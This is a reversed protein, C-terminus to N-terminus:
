TWLWIKCGNIKHKSLKHRARQADRNTEYPGLQVRHREGGSSSKTTKIRSEYGLFALKAKLTEARRADRFTACQMLFPGKKEVKTVAVDVTKNKLEDIYQWDEKEPPPPVDPQETVAKAIAQAPPRKPAKKAPAPATKATDTATSGATNAVTNASTDAAGNISWLFYIFGSLVVVAFTMAVLPLPKPQPAENRTPKAPKAAKTAKPKGRKNAKPNGRKIYDKHAM